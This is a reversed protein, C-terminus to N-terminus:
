RQKQQLQKLWFNHTNQPTKCLTGAEVSGEELLSSNGEFRSQYANIKWLTQRKVEIKPEQKDQFYVLITTAVQL